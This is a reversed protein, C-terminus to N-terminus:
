SAAVPAGTVVATVPVSGAITRPSRTIVCDITTVQSGGGYGGIKTLQAGPM